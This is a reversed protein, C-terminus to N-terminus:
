KGFERAHFWEQALKLGDEPTLLSSGLHVCQPPQTHRDEETLKEGSLIKNTIKHCTTFGNEVGAVIRKPNWMEIVRTFEREGQKIVCDIRATELFELLLDKGDITGINHLWFDPDNSVVQIRIGKLEDRFEICIELSRDQPFAM